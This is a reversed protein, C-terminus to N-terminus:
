CYSMRLAMLSLAITLNEGRFITANDLALGSLNGRLLLLLEFKDILVVINERDVTAVFVIM